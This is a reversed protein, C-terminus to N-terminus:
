LGADPKPSQIESKPSITREYILRIGELTLTDDIVEILESAPAILPALGGAAVVRATGGLEERMRKLIGDVLGVYGYFLGSQIAGITSSGIAVPPRKIEVRPLRAARGALADSLIALGPTIVGGLYQWQANVAEFNTATGFDVVICPTGYKHAAALADAIRDPGLDAPPEYLIQLGTETTHDVFLPLHGLYVESMKGLAYNLPPVVSVIFVRTITQYDIGALEFLGRVQVGFEDATRARDTALRWYKVLEAGEYVGLSINSNGADIALLM